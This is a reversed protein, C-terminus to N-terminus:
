LKNGRVLKFDYVYVFPNSGWTVKGYISDILVHYEHRPYACAEGMQCGREICGNCIKVGEKRCDANTIDQLRERKISTFEIFYRAASEPMFLKNKWFGNEEVPYNHSNLQTVDYQEFRYFPSNRHEPLIKYPEKLYVKEGEYYRRSPTLTNRDEHTTIIRRTQTKKGNIVQHFM